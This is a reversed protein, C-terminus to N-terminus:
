NALITNHIKADINMLSVPRYNENTTTGKHPTSKGSPEYSLTDAQLTSSEIKIGPNPLDGPSPCPQGSWYEQRPFGKFLSGPPSCDMPDCVTLLVESQRTNTNPHHHNRLIVKPTKGGKREKPLTQSLSSLNRKTHKTSNGLSAM